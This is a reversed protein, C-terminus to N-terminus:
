NNTNQKKIYQLSDTTTNQGKRKLERNIKSKQKNRHQELSAQKVRNRWLIVREKSGENPNNKDALKSSHYSSQQKVEKSITKPTNMKSLSSSTQRLYRPISSSSANSEKSQSSQPSNATSSSQKNNARSVPRKPVIPNLKSSHNGLDREFLKIRAAMSVFAEGPAMENKIEKTANIKTTSKFRPVNSTGVRKTIGGKTRSKLLSDRNQTGKNGNGKEHFSVTSRMYRPINSHKATVKPLKSEQEPPQTPQTPQTKKESQKMTLEDNLPHVQETLLPSSAETEVPQTDQQTTEEPYQEVVQKQQTQRKERQKLLRKKVQRNPSKKIDTMEVEEGVNLPKDNVIDGERWNGRDENQLEYALYKEKEYVKHEANYTPKLPSRHIISFSETNDRAPSETLAQYRESFRNLRSPSEKLAQSSFGLSNRPSYSM